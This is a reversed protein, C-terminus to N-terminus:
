RWLHDEAARADPTHGGPEPIGFRLVVQTRAVASDTGRSPQHKRSPNLRIAVRRLCTTPLGFIVKRSVPLRCRYLMTM